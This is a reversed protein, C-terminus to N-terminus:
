LMNAVHDAIALCSTLGPSEIGILNIFGPMGRGTEHCIVFDRFGDGPKQLKARIGAMDPSLDKKEIFPLFTKVSEHFEELHSPEVDYAIDNVYFANPGLKLRGQLDIVTHIGLSTRGPPPYVLHKMTWPPFGNIRFYEGKSYHIRYGADDIDIGAMSAIRDSSLGASNILIETELTMVRADADLIEVIYGDGGSGSIGRVQCGYACMAGREEACTQFSKMLAHTDLIGTSPSVLAGAVSLSAEYGAAASGSILSLGAAGNEKGQKFLTEIVGIDTEHVAVVLKGTKMHPINYDRCYDYLLRNGEVCLSAKLTGEPYYLGAHIVESNRSSTEKGFSEHQEVLVVDNLRDSLKRALALGVVGAGIIVCDVREM